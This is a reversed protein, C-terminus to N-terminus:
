ACCVTPVARRRVTRSTASRSRTLLAVTYRSTASPLIGATLTEDPAIRTSGTRKGLEPRYDRHIHNSAWDAPVPDLGLVPAGRRVPMCLSPM